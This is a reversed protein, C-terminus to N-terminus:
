GATSGSLQRHTCPHRPSAEVRVETAAKAETEGVAAMAVVEMSEAARAVAEMREVAVGMAVVAKATAAARAAAAACGVVEKAVAEARGAATVDEEELAVETAAAAQGEVVRAEPVVTDVATDVLFPAQVAGAPVAGVKGVSAVGADVVAAAMDVERAVVAAVEM